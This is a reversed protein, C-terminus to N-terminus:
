SEVTYGLRLEGDICWARPRRREFLGLFPPRIRDEGARAEERIRNDHEKLLASHVLDRLEERGREGEGGEGSALALRLDDMTDLVSAGWARADPWTRAFESLARRPDPIREVLEGFKALQRPLEAIGLLGSDPNFHLRRATMYTAMRHRRTGATRRDARELRCAEARLLTEATRYLKAVRRRTIDERRLDCALHDLMDIVRPDLWVALGNHNDRASQFLPTTRAKRDITESRLSVIDLLRRDCQAIATDLERMAEADERGARKLRIAKELHPGLREQATRQELLRRAKESPPICDVLSGYVIEWATTGRNAIDQELLLADLRPMAQESQRLATPRSGESLGLATFQWCSYAISTPLGEGHGLNDVGGERGFHIGSFDGEYIKEGAILADIERPDLQQWGEKRAKQQARFAAGPQNLINEPKLDTHTVDDALMQLGNRFLNAAMRLRHSLSCEEILRKRARDDSLMGQGSWALATLVLKHEYDVRVQHLLPGINRRFLPSFDGELLRAVGPADSAGREAPESLLSTATTLIEGALEPVARAQALLAAGQVGHVYQHAQVLRVLDGVSEFPVAKVAVRHEGCSFAAVNRHTGM